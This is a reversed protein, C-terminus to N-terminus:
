AHKTRQYDAQVAKLIFNGEDSYFQLLNFDPAQPLKQLLLGDGEFWLPLYGGLFFGNERMIDIAWPASPHSIDIKIHLRYTKAEAEFGALIEPWDSGAKTVTLTAINADAITNITSETMKSGPIIDNKITREANLTRCCDSVFLTYAPHLFIEHSTDNSLRFELLLSINSDLAKANDFKIIPLWEVELCTPSFDQCEIIKQSNTHNCLAEVFKAKVPIKPSFENIITQTLCEALGQNRFTKRVMLQGVEYLLPNPASRFMSVMGAFEGDTSRAVTTHHKIGDYQEIIAEPNYVYRIPFDDGYTERYIACIDPADKPQFPTINISSTM